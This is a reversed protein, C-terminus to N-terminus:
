SSFHDHGQDSFLDRATGEIKVNRKSVVDFLYSLLKKYAAPSDVGAFEARVILREQETMLPALLEMAYDFRGIYDSVLLTWGLRYITLLGVAVASILFFYIQWASPSVSVHQLKFVAALGSGIAISVGYYATRWFAVAPHLLRRHGVAEFFRKQAHRSGLTLLRMSANRIRDTTGVVLPKALFEWFASGAAPVLFLAVITALWQGWTTPLTIM